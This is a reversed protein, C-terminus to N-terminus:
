RANCVLPVTEGVSGSEPVDASIQFYTTAKLEQYARYGYYFSPINVSCQESPHNFHFECFRPTEVVEVPRWSPNSGFVEGEAENDHERLRRRQHFSLQWTQYCSVIIYAIMSGYGNDRFTNSWTQYYSVVWAAM